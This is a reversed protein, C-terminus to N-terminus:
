AEPDSDSVTPAKAERASTVVPESPGEMLKATM